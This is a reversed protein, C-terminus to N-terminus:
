ALSMPRCGSAEARRRRSMSASARTARPKARSASSQSRVTSTSHVQGISPRGQCGAASKASLPSISRCSSAPSGARCRTRHGAHRRCTPRVVRAGRAPSRSGCRRRSPIGTHRRTAAPGTAVAPTAERSAHCSGPRRRRGARAEALPCADDAITRGAHGSLAGRQLIRRRRQQQRDQQPSRGLGAVEGAQTQDQVGRQLVSQGIARRRQLGGSEQPARLPKRFAQRMACAGRRVWRGPLRVNRLRRGYKLAFESQASDTTAEGGSDDQACRLVEDGGALPM